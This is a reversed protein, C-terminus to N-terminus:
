ASAKRQQAAKGGHNKTFRRLWHAYHAEAHQALDVQSETHNAAITALRPDFMVFWEFCRLSGCILYAGSRFFLRFFAGAPVSSKIGIISRYRIIIVLNKESFDFQRPQFPILEPLSLEL